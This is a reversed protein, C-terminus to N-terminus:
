GNLIKEWDDPHADKVRKMAERGRKRAPVDHDALWEMANDYTERHQERFTAELARYRAQKDRHRDPHAAQYRRQREAAQVRDREARQEPTMSPKRPM